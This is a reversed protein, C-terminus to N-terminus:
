SSTPLIVHFCVCPVRHECTKLNTGAHLKALQQLYWGSKRELEAKFNSRGAKPDVRQVKDDVVEQIVQQIKKFTFGLSRQHVFKVRDGWKAGYAVQLEKSKTCIVYFKRVDVLHKMASEMAYPFLFQGADAATLMVADLAREAAPTEEAMCACVSLGLLVVLTLFLDMMM